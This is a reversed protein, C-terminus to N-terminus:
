CDWCEWEECAHTHTHTHTHKIHTTVHVPGIATDESITTMNCAGVWMELGVDLRALGVSRAEEPLGV